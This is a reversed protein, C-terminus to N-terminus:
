IMELLYVKQSSLVCDWDIMLIEKIFELDTFFNNNLNNINPDRLEQRRSSHHDMRKKASMKYRPTKLPTKGDKKM